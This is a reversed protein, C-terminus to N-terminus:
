VNRKKRRGKYMQVSLYNLNLEGFFKGIGKDPKEKKNENTPHVKKGRGANWGLASSYSCCFFFCGIAGDFIVCVSM